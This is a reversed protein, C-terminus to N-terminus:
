KDMNSENIVGEVYDVFSEITSFINQELVDDEIVIDFDNEMCVLLMMMQISDVGLDILNSSDLIEEEKIWENNKCIFEKVRKFVKSNM